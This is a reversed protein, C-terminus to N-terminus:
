KVKAPGIQPANVHSRLRITDFEIKYMVKAYKASAPFLFLFPTNAGHRLQHKAKDPHRQSAPTLTQVGRGTFKGCARPEEAGLLPFGELLLVCARRGGTRRLHCPKIKVAYLHVQSSGSAAECAGQEQTPPEPQKPQLAKPTRGTTKKSTLLLGQSIRTSGTGM